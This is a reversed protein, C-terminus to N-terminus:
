DSALAAAFASPDDVLVAGPAILQAAHALRSLDAGSLGYQPSVAAIPIGRSMAAFAILAHDISNRALILLPEGPKLGLHALGGAIARVSQRGEAYSLMRWGEGSREALWPRQAALA